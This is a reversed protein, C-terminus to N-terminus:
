LVDQKTWLEGSLMKGLAMIKKTFELETGNNDIIIHAFDSNVKMSTSPEPPKRKSADIWIVLDFLEIDMCRALERGSRLGTYIDYESMIIKALRVADKSNFKEIEDFMFKRVDDRGPTDKLDICDQISKCGFEDRMLDFLFVELAAESSAKAKFGFHDSLLKAAFDKGTRKHGIICLRPKMLKSPKYITLNGRRSVSYINGTEMQVYEQGM